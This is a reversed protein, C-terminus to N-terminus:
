DRFQVDTKAIGAPRRAKDFRYRLQNRSLPHGREDVILTTHFVVLGRKRRAIRQLLEALAGTVEIRLKAQTKSQHVHLAGDRIDHITVSLVDGPHQGLDAGCFTWGLSM